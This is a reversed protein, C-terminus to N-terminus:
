NLLINICQIYKHVIALITALNESGLKEVFYHDPNIVPNDYILDGMDKTLLSKGEKGKSVSTYQNKVENL